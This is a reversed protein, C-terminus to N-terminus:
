PANGDEGGHAVSHAGFLRDEVSHRPFTLRECDSSYVTPGLMEVATCHRIRSTLAERMEGTYGMVTSSCSPAESRVIEVQSKGQSGAFFPRVREM